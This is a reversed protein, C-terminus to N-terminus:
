EEEEEDGEKQMTKRREEAAEAEAEAESQEEEWGFVAAVVAVAAAAAAAAGIAAADCALLAAAALMWRPAFVRFLMLHRRLWAACASAALALAAHHALYAALAHALDRALALPPAPPTTTATSSPASLASLAPLASLATPTPLTTSDTNRQQPSPPLSPPPPLPPPPPPPPPPRKWLAVLPVAAACLLPAAFTNAAVLLPSWPYAVRRLPVFAADWQVSALTAQHGTKFFHFSGLLGLVVPGIPSPPSSSWSPSSPLSPSSSSSSSSSSSPSSSSSALTESMSSSSPLPASLTGTATLGNCHLIEVLCLIQWVLIGLSLHGMPKQLLLLGLACSSVFLLYHTGYANAAGLVTTTAPAPMTTHKKQHPASGAVGAAASSSASSSTRTNTAATQGGSIDGNLTDHLANDPRHRQRHSSSTSSPSPLPPSSSSSPPSSSLPEIGVCPRAWAFAAMGAGFALALVLRALAVKATKLAAKDVRLWDGDDAADLAWFLAALLLGGRLGGGFWAPAVGRYSSSSSRTGGGAGTTARAVDGYYSRIVAPLLIAGVLPVLLQWPASTAATASAYFTSRCRPLQEERCLRVLAAVRGLAAFLVSQYAGLARDAARPRQLSAVAALAGFTSLLFLLVDDEWVTYSNSAFGLAQALTFVIAVWTWVSSRSTTTTTTPSPSAPQQLLQLLKRRRRGGHRQHQRQPFLLLLTAGLTSTAAGGFVVGDVVSRDWSPVLAALFAGAIAGASYTQLIKRLLYANVAPADAGGRLFILLVALGGAMVAIGAAMSPVDFRAWLDKCMRLTEAQYDRFLTHARRWRPQSSAEPAEESAPQQAAAAAAADAADAAAAEAQAREWLALPKALFEDPLGGRALAYERQYRKIQAATVEAAAALRRWDQGDHGLFAEKIPTGLNNFPVPLGLLLALTPVLDIQWVRREKATAPPAAAVSGASADRGFIGRKSYMWLAAEIEDDSEGGHDGKVDMGHDGLVVLLTADDVLAIVQHLLADMQRLKAAMAPHDPGYRHGAHDVGLFHAVIVDWRSSNSAHLLPLLHTAVGDDVSHLDWVNFSDYPRSLTANFCGPFLAHWTDDGLQVLNRGARRLQAVLNDEEIATGAFNSGADIFTPLTGTTLGKLRQLTTTPPDAIFPLLFANQPQAVATDYLVRLANRFHPHQRRQQQPPPSTSSSGHASPLPVTFDYRLADILIM